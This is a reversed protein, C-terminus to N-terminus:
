GHESGHLMEKLVNRIKKTGEQLVTDQITEEFEKLLYVPKGIEVRILQGLKPVRARVPLAEFAGRVACPLVPRGTKMALVATGRRFEQLSGNRSCRGEPFIGINQNRELLDVATRTSIGATLTGTLRLFLGLWWIRYLFRHCIWRIKRRVAVSVLVADLFSSHNAVVIFNTRSPINETGSVRYRFCIRVLVACLFQLVWYWMSSPGEDRGANIRIKGAPEGM